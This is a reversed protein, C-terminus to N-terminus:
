RGGAKTWRRWIDAAAHDMRQLAQYSIGMSKALQIDKVVQIEWAMEGAVEDDLLLDGGDSTAIAAAIM